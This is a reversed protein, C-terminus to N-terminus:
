QYVAWCDSDNKLLSKAPRIAFLNIWDAGLRRSTSLDVMPATHNAEIKVALLKYKMARM